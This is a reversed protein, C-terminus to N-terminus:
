HKLLYTQMFAIKSLAKHTEYKPDQIFVQLGYCLAKGAKITSNPLSKPNEVNIFINEIDNWIISMTNQLFLTKIKTLLESSV